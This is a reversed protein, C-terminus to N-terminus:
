GDEPPVDTDDTGGNWGRWSAPPMEQWSPPWLERLPQEVRPHAELLVAESSARLSAATIGAFLVILGSLGLVRLSPEIKWGGGRRGAASAALLMMLIVLLPEQYRQWANQNISLAATAAVLAGFLVWRTRRDAARLLGLLAIMGLPCLVVFALNTRGALDPLKQTLNWYGSWRGADKDWTTEPVVAIVLGILTAAVFGLVLATRRPREAARWDDVLRPGWFGVLAGGIIAIQLVMLPVVAPNAGQMYSHYVPPVFGGWERYWLGIAVFAPATALVGIGVRGLSGVPNLLLPRVDEWLESDADAEWRVASLWAATWVIAATWVHSQRINVLVLVVLGAALLGRWGVKPRLCLGLVLLVLAWAADDPLLWAASAFFYLGAGLALGALCGVLRGAGRAVMWGLGGVAALAFLLGVLRLVIMSAADAPGPLAAALGALVLHYLPTTASLYNSLDVAPWAEAFRRIMPEHYNLQDFAGRGVMSGTLIVPLAAAALGAMPVAAAVIEGRRPSNHTTESTREADSM